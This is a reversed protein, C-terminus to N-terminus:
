EGGPHHVTAPQAPEAQQLRERALKLYGPDVEYGVFRRGAARAAVATTGSGLFPDLVLGGQFTYLRILRLPLELPFPAPHGVRRAREPPFRWVSRTYTLFDDRELTAGHDAGGKLRYSGKSFVLIYEHADRLVPNAPSCWSGWACSGSVTGKDWIIEGRMLFGLRQMTLALYANLPLYPRRGLNAINVAARGGPKLVRYVEQFVRELFALYEELTMDLDYDKGSCYPPSTVMLDVCNDPIETMQESTHGFIRDLIEAPPEVPDGSDTQGTLGQYLARRYFPTSDHGERLPVGFPSTRSASRKGM